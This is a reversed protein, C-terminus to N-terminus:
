IGSIKRFYIQSLGSFQMFNSQTITQIHRIYSRFKLCIDLSYTPLTDELWVKEVLFTQVFFKTTPLYLYITFDMSKYFYITFELYPSSSSTKATTQFPNENNLTMMLSLSLEFAEWIIFIEM